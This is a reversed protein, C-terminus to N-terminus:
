WFISPIFDGESDKLGADVFKHFAIVLKDCCFWLNTSHLIIRLSIIHCILILVYSHNLLTNDDITM